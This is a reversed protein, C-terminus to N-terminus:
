PIIIGLIDLCRRDHPSFLYLGRIGFQLYEGVEVLWWVSNDLAFRTRDDIWRLALGEAYILLVLVLM